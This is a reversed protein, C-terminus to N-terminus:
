LDMFFCTILRTMLFCTHLRILAKIQQKSLIIDITAIDANGLSNSTKTASWAPKNTVQDCIGSSVNEQSTVQTM